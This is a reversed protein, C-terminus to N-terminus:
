RLSTSCSILAPPFQMALIVTNKLSVIGDSTTVHKQVRANSLYAIRVAIQMQHIYIHTSFRHKRAQFHNAFGVILLEQSCFSFLIM